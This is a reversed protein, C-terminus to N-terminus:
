AAIDMAAVPSFDTPSAVSYLKRRGEKRETVRGEEIARGLVGRVTNKSIGRIGLLGLADAGLEGRARLADVAAEVLRDGAAAVADPAFALRRGDYISLLGRQVDVDRGQAELFRLSRADRPDERTLTWIADPWDEFRSDGRAHTGAHGAHHVVIGESIGAEQKLADFAALIKGAERHEDLGLADMLPRVPDLVLVDFGRLREAWRVRVADDTIRFSSAKGRLSFLAVRDTNRIGAGELWSRATSPSMEFDLIAVSRTGNVAFHDLFPSGDVLSRTLNHVLSTKGAKRQAALLANGGAHLLGDVAWLDAEMETALLDTLTTAEPIAIAEAQEAALLARAMERARQRKVEERLGGRPLKADEQAFHQVRRALTMREARRVGELWAQEQRLSEIAAQEAQSEQWAKEAEAMWRESLVEQVTM